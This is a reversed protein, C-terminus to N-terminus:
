SSVEDSQHHINERRAARQLKRQKDVAWQSWFYGIPLGCVAFIAAFQHRQEGQLNTQLDFNWDLWPNSYCVFSFAGLYLFCSLLALRGWWSVYRWSLVSQLLFGLAVAAVAFSYHQFRALNIYHQLPTMLVGVAAFLSLLM